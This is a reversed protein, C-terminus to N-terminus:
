NIEMKFMSKEKSNHAQVMNYNKSFIEFRKPLEEKSAYARGYRAIFQIFAQEVETPANSLFSISSNHIPAKAALLAALSCTLAM